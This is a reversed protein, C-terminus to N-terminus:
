KTRPKHAATKRTKRPPPETHTLQEIESNLADIRAVLSRWDQKSPIGAGHMLTGLGPRDNEASVDNSGLEILRALLQEADARDLEGREVLVQVRREIEANVREIDGQPVFANRMQNLTDNGARILHTLVTGPLGGRLKKELELITQAQVLATIDEGTDHDIVQVDQEHRILDAVGELTIYRKAETDYLKRNSYRKIIPM